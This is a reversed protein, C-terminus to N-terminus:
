AFIKQKNKKRGLMVQISQVVGKSVVQDDNPRKKLVIMVIAKLFFVYIITSSNLFDFLETMNKEKYIYLFFFFFVKQSQEQLWM